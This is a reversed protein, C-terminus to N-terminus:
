HQRDSAQQLQLTCLTEGMKLILTPGRWQWAMTGSRPTTLTLMAMTSSRTSRSPRGARRTLSRRTQLPLSNEGPLGGVQYKMTSCNYVNLHYADVGLQPLHRILGDERM